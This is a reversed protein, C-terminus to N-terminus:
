PFALQSAPQQSPSLTQPHSTFTKTVCLQQLPHRSCCYFNLTYAPFLKGKPSPKSRIEMETFYVNSTNQTRKTPIHQGKDKTKTDTSIILM